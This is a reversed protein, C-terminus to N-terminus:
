ENKNTQNNLYSIIENIKRVISDFKTMIREDAIITKYVEEDLKEIEKGKRPESPSHECICLSGRYNYPIPIGELLGACMSCYKKDM